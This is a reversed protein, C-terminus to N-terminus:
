CAELCGSVCVGLARRLRDGCPFYGGGRKAISVVLRCGARRLGDWAMARIYMLTCDDSAWSRFMLLRSHRHGMRLRPGRGSCRRVRRM